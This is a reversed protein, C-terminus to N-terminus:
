RTGRPTVSGGSSRETQYLFNRRFLFLFWAIFTGQMDRCTFRAGGWSRLGYYGGRGRSIEDSAVRAKNKDLSLEEQDGRDREGSGDWGVLRVVEGNEMMGPLIKMEVTLEGEAKAPTGSKTLGIINVEFGASVDYAGDM